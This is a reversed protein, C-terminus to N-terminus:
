AIDIDIRSRDPLEIWESEMANGLKARRSNFNPEQSPAHSPRSGKKKSTYLVRFSAGSVIILAQLLSIFILAFRAGQQMAFKGVAVEIANWFLLWSTDVNDKSIRLSMTIIATAMVFMSLSFLAALSLKTWIPLGINWLVSTM